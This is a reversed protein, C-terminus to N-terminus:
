IMYNLVKKEAGAKEIIDALSTADLIEAIARNVKNMITRVQCEEESLKEDAYALPAWPGDLVRMIEALSIEQPSRSLAYGGGKGKKSQLLGGKRLELLIAELFKKPMKEKKALDTILVPGVAYHKALFIAAKLGHKTKQSIM